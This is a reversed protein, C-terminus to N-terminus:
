HCGWEDLEYKAFISLKFSGGRLYALAVFLHDASGEESIRFVTGVVAQTDLLM